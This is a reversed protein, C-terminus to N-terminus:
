FIQIFKFLYSFYLIYLMGTLFMIKHPYHFYENLKDQQCLNASKKYARKETM